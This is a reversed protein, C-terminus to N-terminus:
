SYPPQLGRCGKLAALGPWAAAICIVAASRLRSKMRSSVRVGAIASNPILGALLHSYRPPIMPDGDGNAVFMPMDIASLREDAQSWEAKRSVQSSCPPKKSWTGGGCTSAYPSPTRTGSHTTEGNARRPTTVDRLGASWTDVSFSISPGAAMTM